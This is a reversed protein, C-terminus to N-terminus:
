PQLGAAILKAELDPIDGRDPNYMLHRWRGATFKPNRANIEEVERRAEQHLELAELSIVLASRQMLWNPRRAIIHRALAVADPWRHLGVYADLMVALYPDPATPSRQTAERSYRLAEDFRGLANLLTACIHYADGLSPAIRTAKMVWKLGDEFDKGALKIHGVEACALAHDPDIELAKDLLRRAEGLSELRDESWGWSADEIHTRALGVLAAPFIPNIQLAEQYLGQARKSASRRYDKWRARGSLFLRYAQLDGAESRWVLAQEGDAVIVQLTAAIEEVITDQFLFADSGEGDFRQAWVTQDTACEILQVGARLREGATRVSGRLIWDVGLERGIQSLPRDTGSPLSTVLYIDDLAALTAILDDDLGAPLDPRSPARTLDDFPLLAVSAAGSPIDDGEGPALAAGSPWSFVGVPRPINKFSHNGADTFEAGLEPQLCERVLTSICVGGPPALAELRAALNVGDGYIDAGDEVVDGLNIGIRVRPCDPLEALARQVDLAAEVAACASPLVVLAGDGMLKAIRGNHRKVAPDFVESKMQAIDRLTKAENEAMLRSYGVVDVALIANLRRKVM